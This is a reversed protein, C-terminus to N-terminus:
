PEVTEVIELDHVSLIECVDNLKELIVVLGLGTSGVKELSGGITSSVGLPL